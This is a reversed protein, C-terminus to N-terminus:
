GRLLGTCAFAEFVGLYWGEEKADSNWASFRLGGATSFFGSFNSFSPDPLIFSGGISLLIM